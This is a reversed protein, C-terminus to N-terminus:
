DLYNDGFDNIYEEVMNELEELFTPDDHMGEVYAEIKEDSIIIRNESLCELVFRITAKVALRPNIAKENLM